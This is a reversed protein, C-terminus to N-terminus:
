KSIHFHELVAQWNKARAVNDPLSRNVNWPYEGFLIGGIGGSAAEAIHDYSDDILWNVGANKCVSLKTRANGDLSYMNTFHVEDFLDKFHQNLWNNTTERVITDRGTVVILRYGTSLIKVAEKAEEFPKSNKFDDTDFFKQVRRIAEERSEANWNAIVGAHNDALTLKTGYMNNYYTIVDQFHPLLVEDIDIAITEM